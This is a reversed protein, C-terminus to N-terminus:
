KHLFSFPCKNMGTKAFLKKKWSESENTAVEYNDWYANVLEVIKKENTEQKMVINSNLNPSYFSVRFLPDGKKIKVPKTEDVITIALSMVRSWNSLNFWGPVAIFNNKYSTIPHDNFEFWVDDDHTWFLFKPFNLQIVPQPSFIHEEDYTLLDPENCYITSQDGQRGVKLNFDIPSVGVFTRDQRHNFAPCKKYVYKEDVLESQTILRDDPYFLSAYRIVVSM